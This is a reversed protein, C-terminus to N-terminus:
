DAIGPDDIRIFTDPAMHELLRVFEARAFAVCGETPTFDPRALHLFVASGDGPIVPADNHGIVVILDYISDERWLREHRGSYPLTVPRNYQPDAPDDCWGDMPSLPRAPIRLALDRVRDPRYLLHRIPFRGAPTCGDGEKKNAAIGSRGLACPLRLSGIRAWGRTEGARGTVVIDM